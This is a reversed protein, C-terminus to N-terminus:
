AGGNFDAVRDLCHRGHERCGRTQARSSPMKRLLRVAPQWARRMLRLVQFACGVNPICAVRTARASSYVPHHTTRNAVHSPLFFCNLCEQVNCIQNIHQRRTRTQFLNGEKQHIACIKIVTGYVRPVHGTLSRQTATSSTSTPPPTDCM